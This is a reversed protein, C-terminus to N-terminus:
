HAHAHGAPKAEITRYAGLQDLAGTLEGHSGDAGLLVSRGGELSTTRRLFLSEKSGMAETAPDYLEPTEYGHCTCLELTGVPGKATRWTIRWMDSTGELPVVAAGVVGEGLGLILDRMREGGPNVPPFSVWVWSRCPAEPGEPLLPLTDHGVAISPGAACGALLLVSLALLLSKM